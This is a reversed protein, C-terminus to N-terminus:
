VLFAEGVNHAIIAMDPSLSSPSRQGLRTPAYQMSPRGLRSALGGCHLPTAAGSSMDSRGEKRAARAVCHHQEDRHYHLVYQLSWRSQKKQQRVRKGNVSTLRDSRSRRESKKVAMADDTGTRNM